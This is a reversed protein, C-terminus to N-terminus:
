KGKADLQPEKKQLTKLERYNILARKKVAADTFKIDWHQRLFNLWGAEYILIEDERVVPTESDRIRQLIDEFFQRRQKATMLYDIFSESLAYNLGRLEGDNNDDDDDDVYFKEGDAAFLDRLRPLEAEPHDTYFKKISTPRGSYDVRNKRAKLDGAGTGALTVVNRLGWAGYYSATGENLWTPIHATGFLLHLLAHTGEHQITGLPADQDFDPEAGKAPKFNYYTHLIITPTIEGGVKKWSSQCIGRSWESAKSRKLYAARSNYIRMEPKYDGFTPSSKLVFARRFVIAFKDMYEGAQATFFPTHWTTVRWSDTELSFSGDPNKVVRKLNKKLELKESSTWRWDLPKSVRQGNRRETGSVAGLSMAFSLLIVVFRRRLFRRM